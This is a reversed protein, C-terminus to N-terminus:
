VSAAGLQRLDALVEEPHAGPDTVEYVKALTGDPRILFTMRRAYEAFSEEPAKVVGYARGVERDVDSLLPFGFSQEAAFAANDAPPDFSAGVIVANAATFEPARDRFGM